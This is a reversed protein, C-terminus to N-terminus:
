NFPPAKFHMHWVASFAATMWEPLIGLDIGIYIYMTTCALYEDNSLKSRIFCLTAKKKKCFGFEINLTEFFIQLCIQIYGIIYEVV